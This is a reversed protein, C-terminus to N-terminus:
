APNLHALRTTISYMQMIGFTIHIYIAVYVFTLTAEQAIQLPIM